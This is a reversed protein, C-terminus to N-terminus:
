APQPRAAKNFVMREIERGALVPIDGEHYAEWRAVTKHTCGLKAGLQTQTLGLNLRINKLETGTM